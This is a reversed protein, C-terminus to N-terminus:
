GYQTGAVVLWAYEDLLVTPPSQSDVYNNSAYALKIRFGGGRIATDTYQIQTISVLTPLAVSSGDTYYQHSKGSCDMWGAIWFTTGPLISVQRAARGQLLTPVSIGPSPM